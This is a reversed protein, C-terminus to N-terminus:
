HSYGSQKQLRHTVEEPHLVLGLDEILDVLYAKIVLKPQRLELEEIISALSSPVRRATM